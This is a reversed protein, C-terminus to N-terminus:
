MYFHTVAQKMQKMHMQMFFVKTKKNKNKNKVIKNLETRRHLPMKSTKILNRCGKEIRKIKM